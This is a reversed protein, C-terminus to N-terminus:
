TTAQLMEKPISARRVDMALVETEKAVRHVMERDADVAWEDVLTRLGEAAEVPLKQETYRRGAEDREVMAMALLSMGVHNIMARTEQQASLATLLLKGAFAIRGPDVSSLAALHAAIAQADETSFRRLFSAVAEVAAIGRCAIATERAGLLRVLMALKVGSLLDLDTPNRLADVAVFHSLFMRSVVAVVQPAPATDSSITEPDRSAAELIIDLAVASMAALTRPLYRLVLMQVRRPETRLVEVIHSPHVHEDLRDVQQHAQNHFRSLTRRLWNSQEEPTLEAYWAARCAVIQKDANKLESLPAPASFFASGNPGITITREGFKDELAGKTESHSSILALALLTDVRETDSTLVMKLSIIGWHKM